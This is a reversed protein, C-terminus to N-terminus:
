RHGGPGEGLLLAAARRLLLPSARAVDLAKAARHDILAIERNQSAKLLITGLQGPGAILHQSVVPLLVARADPLRRQLGQSRSSKAATPTQWCDRIANTKTAYEGIHPRRGIPMRPNGSCAFDGHGSSHPWNKIVLALSSRDPLVCRSSFKGTADQIM